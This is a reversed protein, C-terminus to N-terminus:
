SKGKEEVGIHTGWVRNVAPAGCGGAGERRRSKGPGERRRGKGAGERMGERKKMVGLREYTERNARVRRCM